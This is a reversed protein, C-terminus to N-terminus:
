PDLGVTFLSLFSPAGMPTEGVLGEGAVEGAGFTATGTFIGAAAILGDPGVTAQAIAGMGAGTATKVWRIRGSPDYNALLGDRVGTTQRTVQGGAGDLGIDAFWSFGGSALFGGDPL